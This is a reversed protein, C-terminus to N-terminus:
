SPRQETVPQGNRYLGEFLRSRLIQGRPTEGPQGFHVLELEAGLLDISYVYDARNETPRISALSDELLRQIEEESYTRRLLIILRDVIATNDAFGSHLVEAAYANGCGSRFPFVQMSTTQFLRALTTHGARSQADALLHTSYHLTLTALNAPYYHLLLLLAPSISLALAVAFRRRSRRKPKSIM